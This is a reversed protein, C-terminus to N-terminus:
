QVFHNPQMNYVLLMQSNSIGGSPSKLVFYTFVGFGSLIDGVFM